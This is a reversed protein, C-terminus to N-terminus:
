HGNLKKKPKQFYLTPVKGRVIEFVVVWGDALFLQRIEEIVQHSEGLEFNYPLANLRKFWKRNKRLYVEVAQKLEPVRGNSSALSQEATLM